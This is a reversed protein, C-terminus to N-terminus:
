GDNSSSIVIGADAVSRRRIKQSIWGSAVVARYQWGYKRLIAREVPAFDPGEVVRAVGDVVASGPKPEGRMSCPQLTVRGDRRIRKVKGAGGATTFCLEDAGIPAIWVPTAVASGDKRFSTLLVYREDALNSVGSM